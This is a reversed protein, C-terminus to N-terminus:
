RRLDEVIRGDRMKIMRSALAGVEDEHTVMVITMGELNLSKLLTLVDDGSVSDLNGTPEDALLIRPQGVLARAIAVRQSQGGSLESPDHDVREGLGVIELAAIARARREQEPVSSGNRRYLLPLMVQRLAPMRPLLHFSQFVFGIEESRVEALEDEGLTAVEQGNLRYSGSSPTDLCGIMNMLTSKGSGSAGMIALWEGEEIDLDVHDLARVVTDGMEYTKCLDRLEIMAM